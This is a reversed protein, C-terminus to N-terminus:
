PKPNNNLPYYLPARYPNKFTISPSPTLVIAWIVAARYVRFGLVRFGLHYHGKETGNSCVGTYVTYGWYLM